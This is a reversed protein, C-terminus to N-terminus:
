KSSIRETATKIFSNIYNIVYCKLKQMDDYQLKAPNLDAILNDINCEPVRANWTTKIPLMNDFQKILFDYSNGYNANKDVKDRFSTLTDMILYYADTLTKKKERKHQATEQLKATLAVGIIAGIFSLISPLVTIWFSASLTKRDDKQPTHTNYEEAIELDNYPEKQNSSPSPTAEHLLLSSDSLMRENQPNIVSYCTDSKKIDVKSSGLALLFLFTFCILSFLTKMLM